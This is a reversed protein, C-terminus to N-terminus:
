DRDPKDSRAGTDHAVTHLVIDKEFYVTYAHYDWSSVAPTGVAPRRVVPKGFKALVQSKSMGRHPSDAPKLVEPPQEPLKLVEANSQLIFASACLLSFAATCRNLAM